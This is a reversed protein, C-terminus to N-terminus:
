PLWQMPPIGGDIPFNFLSAQLVEWMQRDPHWVLRFIVPHRIGNAYEFVIGVRACLWMTQQPNKPLPDFWRMESWGSGGRWADQGIGGTLLVSGSEPMNTQFLVSQLGRADVTIATPIRGEGAYGWSARFFAAFVEAPDAPLPRDQHTPDAAKRMGNIWPELANGTAAEIADHSLPAHGDRLRWQWYAHPDREVYFLCVAEEVKRLLATRQELSPEVGEFVMNKMASRVAECNVLPAMALDAMVPRTARFLEAPTDRQRFARQYQVIAVIAVLVIAVASGSIALVQRSSMRSTRVLM